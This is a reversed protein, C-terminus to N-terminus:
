ETTATFNFTGLPDGAKFPKKGYPTGLVENLVTATTEELNAKGNEVTVTHAASNATITAGSMDLTAISARGLSGLNAAPITSQVAVEVTARGTSLEVWIANLTINTEESGGLPQHLKIGGTSRVSGEKGTPSITGTTGIPFGVTTVGLPTAPAILQLETGVETLKTIDSPDLTLSTTGVPQVALTKPQTETLSTGVAQNAKFPAPVAKVAKKKGKKKKAKIPLGLKKNLEKAASSSLKMSSASVNTGFGNRTASAGSIAAFKMTKSGVKASLSNSSTALIFKTVSVSKKGAKFKIGGELELEGAGATDMTGSGVPLTITKGGSVTAPSVGSLKAKSKKLSKILGSSLTITTKSTGPVVPNAAASAL